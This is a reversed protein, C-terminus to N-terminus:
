KLGYKYYLAHDNVVYLSLMLLWIGNATLEMYNLNYLM